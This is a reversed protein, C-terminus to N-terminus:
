RALWQELYPHELVPDLRGLRAWWLAQREQFGIRAGVYSGYIGGLYFSAALAATALGSLMREHAFANHAV